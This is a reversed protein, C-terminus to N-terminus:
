SAFFETGARSTSFTGTFLEISESIWRRVNSFFLLLFAASDKHSLHFMLNKNRAPRAAVHKTTVATPTLLDFLASMLAESSNPLAFSAFSAVSRAELSTSIARAVPNAPVAFWFAPHLLDAPQIRQHVRRLLWCVLLLVLLGFDRLRLSILVLVGQFSDPQLFCRCASDHHAVPSISLSRPTKAPVVATIPMM